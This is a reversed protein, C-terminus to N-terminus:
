HAPKAALAVAPGTGLSYGWVVIRDPAYRQTPSHM